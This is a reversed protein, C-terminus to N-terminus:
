SEVCLWFTVKCGLYSVFSTSCSPLNEVSTAESSASLLTEKSQPVTGSSFFAATERQRCSTTPRRVLYWALTGVSAFLLLLWHGVCNGRVLVFSLGGFIRQGALGLGSGANEEAVM